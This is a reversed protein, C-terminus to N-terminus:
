QIRWLATNKLLNRELTYQKILEEFVCHLRMTSFINNPELRAFTVTCRSDKIAM